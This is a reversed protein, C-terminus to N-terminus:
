KPPTLWEKLSKFGKKGFYIMAWIALAGISVFVLYKAIVGYTYGPDIPLALLDNNFTIIDSVSNTYNTDHQWAILNVSIEYNGSRNTKITAKFTYTQGKYM